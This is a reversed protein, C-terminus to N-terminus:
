FPKWYIFLPHVVFLNDLDAGYRRKRHGGSASTRSTSEKQSPADSSGGRHIQHDQSEHLDLISCPSEKAEIQNMESHVLALIAERRHHM